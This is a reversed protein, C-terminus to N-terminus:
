PEKRFWRGLRSSAFREKDARLERSPGIFRVDPAPGGLFNAEIKAVTGAGFELFCTGAADFHGPSGVGRIRYAIEDAVTQAARDAFAGAKPVAAAGVPIKTVDGLAFVNLFRTELNRPNVPIWGEQP